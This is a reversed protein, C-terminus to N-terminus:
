FKLGAERAADALAKVRGHFIYGGRDFVVADIGKAKAREAVLTGVATAAAIDSTRSTKSKFDADLSSASALTRGAADDIIQAYIHKSSRHVSLRVSNNATKRLKTRNRQRRRKFLENSDSM